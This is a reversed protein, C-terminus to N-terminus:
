PSAVITARIIGSSSAENAPKPIEVEGFDKLAKSSPDGLVFDIGRVSHTTDGPQAPVAIGLYATERTQAMIMPTEPVLISLLSALFVAKSDPDCRNETLCTAPFRFSTNAENQLGRNYLKTTPMAQVFNLVYNAMARPDKQPAMDYLKRALPYLAEQSLENIASYNPYLQLATHDVSTDVVYLYTPAVQNLKGLRPNLWNPDSAFNLIYGEYQDLTQYIWEAVKPAPENRAGRASIIVNLGDKAVSLVVSEPNNALTKNIYNEIEKLRKQREEMIQEQLGLAAKHMEGSKVGQLLVKEQKQTKQLAPLSFTATFQQPPESIAAGKKLTYLYVIERDNSSSIEKTLLAGEPHVPGTGGGFFVGHLFYWGGLLTLCLFVLSVLRRMLM